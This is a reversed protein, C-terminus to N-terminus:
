SAVWFHTLQTLQLVLLFSRLRIVVSKLYSEYRGLARSENEIGHRLPAPLNNINTHREEKDVLQKLFKSNISKRHLVERFQSATIRHKQENWWRSNQHQL